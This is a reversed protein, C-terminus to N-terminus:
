SVQCIFSKLYYSEPFYVSLPHDPSQTVKRLIHLKRGAQVSARRLMFMFDDESFFRSCSSTVLIGNKGIQRMAARNLFHYAKGAAETDKKTKTLAPPDLIIMDYPNESPTNLWQFADAEEVSYQSASFGNAKMNTHVGELASQSEDVNQVHRAGGQLAAISTAGTYSFLNLVSRDKSFEQVAQRLDKQDLFLGTKQGEMVDVTLHRGYELCEVPATITGEHITVVPKLKEEQRIHIDSREVIARPSFINKCAEIILPKLQDMGATSIQFVIVDNYRDIILGPLFDVEGFVIRYATTQTNPGYGLLLRRDSAASVTQTIWTQDITTEEFTLLRVSISSTSSFTGTGIIRGNRDAVHVLEGHKVNTPVSDMAGSFIWPHHFGASAERGARLQIIPYPM